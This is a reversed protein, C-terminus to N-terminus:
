ARRRERHSKAEKLLAFFENLDVSRTQESKKKRGNKRKGPRAEVTRLAGALEAIRRSPASDVGEMAAILVGGRDLVVRMAEEILLRSDSRAIRSEILRDVDDLLVIESSDLRGIIVQENRRVLRVLDSATTYCASMGSLLALKGFGALCRTKGSMTAGTVLTGPPALLDSRSRDVPADWHLRPLRAGVLLALYDYVIRCNCDPMGVASRKTGTGRCEQHSGVVSCFLSQLRDMEQGTYEFEKITLKGSDM